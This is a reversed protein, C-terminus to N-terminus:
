PWISPARPPQKKLPRVSRYTKKQPDIVKKIRWTLLYFNACFTVRIESISASHMKKCQFRNNTLFDTNKALSLFLRWIGTLFTSFYWKERVNITITEGDEERRGISYYLVPHSQWCRELLSRRMYCLFLQKRGWIVIFDPNIGTSDKKKSFLSVFYGRMIISVGCKNWQSPKKFNFNQGDIVRDGPTSPSSDFDIM